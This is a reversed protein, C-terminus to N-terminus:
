CRSSHQRPEGASLLNKPVIWFVAASIGGHVYRDILNVLEEPFDSAKNREM